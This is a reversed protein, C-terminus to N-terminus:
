VRAHNLQALLDTLVDEAQDLTLTLRVVKATFSGNYFASEVDEASHVPRGRDDGTTSITLNVM